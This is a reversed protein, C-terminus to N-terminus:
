KLGYAGDVHLWLDSAQCTQAIPLIPDVSGSSTTGATVVVCFIEKKGDLEDLKERLNDLDIRRNEDVKIPILSQDGLGM